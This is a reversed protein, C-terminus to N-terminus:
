DKALDPQAHIDATHTAQDFEIYGTHVMQNTVVGDEGAVTRTFATKDIAYAIAQRVRVDDFPPRPRRNNFSVFYWNSDKLPKIEIEPDSRLQEASARDVSAVHLDGARLALDREASLDSSCVDSSWDSIRM